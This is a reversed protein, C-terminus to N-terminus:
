SLKSSQALQGLSLSLHENFSQAGVFMNKPTSKTVTSHQIGRKSLGSLVFGREQVNLNNGAAALLMIKNDIKM